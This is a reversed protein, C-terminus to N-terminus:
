RGSAALFARIRLMHAETLGDSLTTQVILLPTGTERSYPVLQEYAGGYNPEDECWLIPRGPENVMQSLVASHKWDLERYRHEKQETIAPFDPLGLAPALGTRATDGWMTLWRLDFGGALEHIWGVIQPNYRVGLDQHFTWDVRPDSYDNDPDVMTNINGDVDLFAVARGSHLTTDM